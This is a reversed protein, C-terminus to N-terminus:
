GSRPVFRPPSLAPADRGRPARVSRGGSHGEASLDRVLDTVSAAEAQGKSLRGESDIIEYEYEPM